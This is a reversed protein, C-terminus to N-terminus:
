RTRATIATDLDAIEGSFDGQEGEVWARLDYAEAVKPAHKVADDADAAAHALDHRYLYAWGRLRYGDGDDPALRIAESLDAIARNYDQSAIYVSGRWMYANADNPDAAIAADLEKISAKSKGELFLNHGSVLHDSPSPNSAQLSLIVFGSIGMLVSAVICPVLRRKWVYLAILGLEVPAFMVTYRLGWIPLHAILDLFFAAAAGLVVSGTLTRLREIGYGRVALETTFGAVVVVVIALLLPIARLDTFVGPALPEFGKALDGAAGQYFLSCIPPIAIMVVMLILYAGLGLTFDSASPRYFGVSALPLQEWYRVLALLAAGILLEGLLWPAGIHPGWAWGFYDFVLDVLGVLFPIGFGIALGIETASFHRRSQPEAAGTVNVIPSSM